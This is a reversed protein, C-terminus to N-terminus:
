FVTEYIQLSSMCQLLPAGELHSTLMLRQLVHHTPKSSTINGGSVFTSSLNKMEPFTLLGSM